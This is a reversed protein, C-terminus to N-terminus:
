ADLENGNPAIEPLALSHASQGARRGRRIELVAGEADHGTAIESKYLRHFAEFIKGLEAALLNSIETDRSLVDYEGNGFTTLSRENDARRPFGRLGSRLDIKDIVIRVLNKAFM